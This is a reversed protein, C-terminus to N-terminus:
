AGSLLRRFAAEDIVPVGLERAKGVRCRNPYGNEVHIFDNEEDL